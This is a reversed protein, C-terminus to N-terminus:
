GGACTTTEVPADVSVEIMFRLLYRAQRPWSLAGRRKVVTAIPSWADRVALAPQKHATSRSCATSAAMVRVLLCCRHVGWDQPRARNIENFFSCRGPM